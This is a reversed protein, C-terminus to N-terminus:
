RHALFRSARHQRSPSPGPAAVVGAPHIAVTYATWGTTAAPHTFVGPDDSSSALIQRSAGAISCNTAVAGATGSNATQLNVYNTPAATPANLEGDLGMLALYLVDKPGGTVAASTSSATNATTTGIAVTSLEPVQTAPNEAGTIRWVIGCGKVIGSCDVSVTAGESGDAWRYWISTEDDTADLVTFVQETWGTASIPIGTGQAASRLLMILLNGAAISGPLNITWPDIATAINTPTRAADVPSAM